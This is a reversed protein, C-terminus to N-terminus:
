ELPVRFQFGQRDVLFTMQGGYEVLSDYDKIRESKQKKTPKDGINYMDYITRMSKTSSDRLIGDGSFSHLNEKSNTYNNVDSVNGIAIDSSSFNRMNDTMNHYFDNHRENKTDKSQFQELIDANRRKVAEKYADNERKQELFDVQNGQIRTFLERLLQNRETTNRAKFNRMDIDNIFLIRDGKRLTSFAGKSPAKQVVLDNSIVLNFRELFSDPLLMGGYRQMAKVEMNKVQNGRKIKVKVNKNPELNSILLELEGWNRPAIDNISILIDGRKFPNSPFFPDSFQVTFTAEDENSTIFRVGIDGYYPKDQSLFRDIYSKEIFEHGGVGLGYIKYCINSIVGNQQTPASFKAYQLFGKQHTQFRGPKAGNIGTSALERTLAYNDIDSLEYTYRNDVKGNIAFLGVFPDYKLLNKINPKTPSYGIIAGNKLKIAYLGKGLNLSAQKYYSACHTYDLKEETKSKGYLDIVELENSELIGNKEHVQIEKTNVINEDPEKIQSPTKQTSANFENELANARMISMSGYFSFSLFATLTVNRIINRLIYIKSDKSIVSFKYVKDQTHKISDKIFDKSIFAIYKAKNNINTQSLDNLAQM